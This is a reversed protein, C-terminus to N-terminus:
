YVQELFPLREFRLLRADVMSREAGGGAAADSAKEAAAGNEITAAFHGSLVHRCVELLEPENLIRRRGRRAILGLQWRVLAVYVHLLTNAMWKIMGICVYM